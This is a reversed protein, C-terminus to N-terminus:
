KHGMKKLLAPIYQFIPRDQDEIVYGEELLIATEADSLYRNDVYLRDKAKASARYRINRNIYRNLRLQKRDLEVPQSDRFCCQYPPWIFGACLDPKFIMKTVTKDVIPTPPNTLDLTQILLKKKNRKGQIAADFCDSTFSIGPYSDYKDLIEIIDTGEPCVLFEDIDVFVLWKTHDKARFNVANEYAPIQTSLAWKYATNDDQYGFVEPWNILTIVGDRVYPKLVAEYSDSSGINYIYFHDVGFLLHYELWEKLYPAENKFIACISLNYKEKTPPFGRKTNACLSYDFTEFISPSVNSENAQILNYGCFSFAIFLIVKNVFVTGGVKKLIDWGLIHMILLCGSYMRQVQLFLFSM